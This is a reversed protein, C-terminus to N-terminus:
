GGDIGADSLTFEGGSPVFSACCGGRNQGFTVTATAVRGDALHGHLVCVTGQTATDDTVQVQAPGGDGPWLKAVCPPDATVDVLAAPLGAPTYLDYGPSVCDCERTGCGGAAVAGGAIMIAVIWKAM